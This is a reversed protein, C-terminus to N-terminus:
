AVLAVAALDAESEGVVKNRGSTKAIYLREDALRMIQMLDAGPSAVAVGISVTVRLGAKLAAWDADAVSRRVSECARSASAADRGIFLLCFEEGGMRIALDPGEPVNAFLRAVMRLVDDGTAHTFHDNISKFHDLDFM